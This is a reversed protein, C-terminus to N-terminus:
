GKVAGGTVGEVYYRQLLLFVSVVPISVIVGAACFLTYKENMNARSLWEFMGVAVSMGRSNEHILYNALMFDGWPAMFGMLVTYIVIPKSLPMIVKYFVQLRTAGDVRAAEDLSKPITDFFGKAVYYGMGSSACYVIILGLPAMNATLGLDVFVKYILILTLFGPFMGLILMFNMLGRRGKFRLRSLTYSMSLVFVTQLIATAVGMIGTNIFWRLFDTERLLRIYNDAGFQKPWLYGVQAGSEVRFSELVIGFFPFLWVVTIVTLLLYIIANGLRRSAKAGLLSTHPKKTRIQKM